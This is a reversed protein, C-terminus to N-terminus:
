LPPRTLDEVKLKTLEVLNQYHSITPVPPSECWVNLMEVVDEMRAEDRSIRLLCPFRAEVDLDPEASRRVEVKGVCGLKIAILGSVM